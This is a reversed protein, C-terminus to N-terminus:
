QAVGTWDQDHALSIGGAVFPMAIAVATGASEIGGAAAPSACLAVAFTLACLRATQRIMGLGALSGRGKLPRGNWPTLDRRSGARRWALCARGAASPDWWTRRM